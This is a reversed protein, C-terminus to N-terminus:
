LTVYGKSEDDILRMMLEMERESIVVTRGLM